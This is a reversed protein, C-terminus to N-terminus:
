IMTNVYHDAGKSLYHQPPSKPNVKLFNEPPEEATTKGGPVGTKAVATHPSLGKYPQVPRPMM